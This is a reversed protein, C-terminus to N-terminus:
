IVEGTNYWSGSTSNFTDNISVLGMQPDYEGDIVHVALTPDWTTRYYYPIPILYESALLRGAPTARGHQNLLAQAYAQKDSALIAERGNFMKDFTDHLDSRDDFPRRFTLFHRTFEDRKKRVHAQWQDGFDGSYITNLWTTIDAEDVHKGDHGTLISWAKEVPEAAYVGDAYRQTGHARTRYDPHHIHVDAPALRATRNVRGFRQLLAQLDAASTYLTDMDIDLSVEVCQTAVILGGRARHSTSYRRMLIDEITNRDGRRFRSHLLVAAEPDDHHCAAAVPALQTYLYQADAINNAVVLVADEADIRDAIAAITDPDTLHSHHTRVRHRAPYGHGHADIMDRGPLAETILTILVDPMTASLVCVNGGIHRVFEMMSLIFGLRAPEYAHLEDFVFVSNAADLLIGSHVPGALAGRLLQYPTTVRISEHFLRTADRRAVAQRAQQHQDPVDPDDGHRHDTNAHLYFSGSRSHAVGVSNPAGVGDNHSALTNAMANISALYPLIYFVRPCGGTDAAIRDVRAGTWLQATVTKGSGTPARVIVHDGTVDRAGQQHTTLTEGDHAMRQPLQAAFEGNLPQRLRLDGHASSLHDAITVAGQLMVAALGVDPPCRRQWRTFLRQLEDYADRYVDSVIAPTVDHHQDSLWHALAQVHEQSVPGIGERFEDFSHAGYRKLLSASQDNTSTIPRHHTAIAAAIWERDDQHPILPKLWGLSLVEHRQPWAAARSYLVDQFGQPIKGFDHAADAIEVLDWFRTQLPQPLFRLRGVRQRLKRAAALAAASHDLLSEPTSKARVHHLIKQYDCM